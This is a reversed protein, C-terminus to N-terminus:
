DEFEVTRSPRMPGSSVHRPFATSKDGGTSIARATLDGGLPDTTSPETAPAPFGIGLSQEAHDLQSRTPRTSVINARAAARSALEWADSIAAAIVEDNLRAEAAFRRRLDASASLWIHAPVDDFGPRICPVALWGAESLRVSVHGLDLPDLRADVEVDGVKRRYEQLESCTYHLGLVRIGRSSLARSLDVGFIARRVHRDPPPIVGYKAVLRKWANAPTEGGLGAHPTNHYIDVVWRVLAQCLEEVSLSARAQPDYDGKAVVSEFTRGTFPALAGTGATKFLREVRGRLHPLGAPPADPDTGLDVIARRFATSLFSPGQDHVVSEPTGYFDCPSLAGAADAYPKKPSVVMELTEVALSATPTVDLKMGLIVRSAADMAVCIWPRLTAIETKLDDPLKDHLAANTCLTMLNVRWEDIEARQLPREIDPGNAVMAFKKMAAQLGYRGAYVDFEPLSRVEEAFRKYSPPRLKSLGTSAREGNRKEIEAKLAKYVDRISPRNESGYRPAFEVMLIRTESQIRETARDGCMRYRDRLGTACLGSDEFRKIWGRLTRECPPRPPQSSQPDGARPRVLHGHKGRKGTRIDEQVALESQIQKIARKMSPDSRSAKKAAEMKLFATCFTYKWLVKMQEKAPLDAILNADAHMRAKLHGVDFAHREFRYDPQASLAHLQDYTFTEIVGPDDVRALLYGDSTRQRLRYAIGDLTIRDQPGIRYIPIFESQPMM